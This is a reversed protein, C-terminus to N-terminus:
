KKSNDVYGGGDVRNGAHDVEKTVMPGQPLVEILYNDPDKIFALGKMGGGNPTKTFVTDNAAFWECAAYVDPVAIGLHGFGGKFDGDARGTKDGNGTNYHPHAEKESGHNWTLEICGPLNMCFTWQEDKETPIQGPDVPSVFYVSFGYQPFDRSMVLRFGLVNCYFNLSVVPDRVRFMTQQM